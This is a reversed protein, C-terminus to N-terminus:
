LPAIFRLTGMFATGISISAAIVLRLLRLTSMPTLTLSLEQSRKEEDDLSSLASLATDSRFDFWVRGRQRHTRYVRNSTSQSSTVTGVSNTSKSSTLGISNPFDLPFPPFSSISSSSNSSSLVIFPENMVRDTSGYVRVCLNWFCLLFNM